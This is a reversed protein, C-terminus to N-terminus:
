GLGIRTIQAHFLSQVDPLSWVPVWLVQRM